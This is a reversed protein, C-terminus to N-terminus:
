EYGTRTRVDAAGPPVWTGFTYRPLQPDRVRTHSLLHGRLRTRLTATEGVYVPRGDRFLVYLGPGNGVTRLTAEHFPRAGAQVALLAGPAPIGDPVLAARAGPPAPPRRPPRAAMAEPQRDFEQLMAALVPDPRAM